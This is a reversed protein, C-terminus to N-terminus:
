CNNVTSIYNYFTEVIVNYFSRMQKCLFYLYLPITFLLIVGIIRQIDLLESYAILATTSEPNSRLLTPPPPIM